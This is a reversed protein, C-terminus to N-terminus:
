ARRPSCPVPRRASRSSRRPGSAWSPTRPSLRRRPLTAVTAVKEGSKAVVDIEAGPTGALQREAVQEVGTQGVVSAADYPAGLKGLQQATVPGTVGVVGDALGPTIATRQSQTQFVTGPLPYIAPKIQQYRAMAATFVPEFFTPHARAASLATSVQQKTAGAAVLATTLSAPDKVRSGELGVVVMQAQTTLPIDGAGLVPVRDPWTTRLVLKGGTRLPPAITSPAWHVRWQGNQNVLKIITGITVQGLGALTLHETVKQQATDGSTQMPGAGFSAATVNLSAFAAQNVATFDAPPSATFARMGAWDRHSWDALYSGATAPPTSAQGGCAVALLALIGTAGAALVRRKM